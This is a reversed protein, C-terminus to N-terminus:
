VEPIFNKMNVKNTSYFVKPKDKGEEKLYFTTEHEAVRYIKAWEIKKNEFKLKYKNEIIALDMEIESHRKIFIADVWFLLFNKGSLKYFDYICNDVYNVIHFWVKRLLPDCVSEIEGELKGDVFTYILKNTAISGILALRIYKPLQLCEEYFEESIYGLVFATNYYAKVIDLEDVDDYQLTEGMQIEESMDAFKNYMIKKECDPIIMKKADLNKYFEKKIKNFLYLKGKPFFQEAYVFTTKDYKIYKTQNTTKMTFSRKMKKYMEAREFASGKCYVVVNKKDEEM